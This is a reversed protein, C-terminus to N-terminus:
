YCKWVDEMLNMWLIKRNQREPNDLPLLSWLYFDAVHSQDNFPIKSKSGSGQSWWLFYNKLFDKMLLPQEAKRLIFGLEIFFRNRLQKNSLSYNVCVYIESLCPHSYSFAHLKKLM